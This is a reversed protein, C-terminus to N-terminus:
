KERMGLVIPEVKLKYHKRNCVKCIWVELTADERKDQKQLVLNNEDECCKKIM